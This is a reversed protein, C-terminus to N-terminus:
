TATVWLSGSRSGVGDTAGTLEGATVGVVEVGAESTSGCWVARGVGGPGGGDEEPPPGTPTSLKPKWPHALSDDWPDLLEAAADAARSEGGPPGAV